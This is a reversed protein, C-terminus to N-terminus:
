EYRGMYVYVYWIYSLKCVINNWMYYINCVKDNKHMWSLVMYIAALYTLLHEFESPILNSARLLFSSLRKWEDAQFINSLNIINETPLSDPFHVSNNLNYITLATKQLCNELIYWICVKQVLM